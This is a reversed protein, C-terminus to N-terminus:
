PNANIETPPELIAAPAPGERPIMANIADTTFPLM